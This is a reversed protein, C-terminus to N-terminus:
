CMAPIQPRPLKLRSSAIKSVKSPDFEKKLLELIRDATADAHTKHQQYADTKRFLDAAQAMLAKHRVSGVREEQFFGKNALDEIFSDWGPVSELSTM